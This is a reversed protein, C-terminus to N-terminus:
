PQPWLTLTLAKGGKGAKRQPKQREKDKGLKKGGAQPRRAGGGGGLQSAEEEQLALLTHTLTLTPNPGPHHHRAERPGPQEPVGIHHPNPSSNPSTPTPALTLTLPTPRVLPGSRTSCGSTSRWNLAFRRSRRHHPNPHSNCSRSPTEEARAAPSGLLPRTPSGEEGGPAPKHQKHPRALIPRSVVPSEDVAKCPSPSPALNPSPTPRAKHKLGKAAALGFISEESALSPLRCPSPPPAPIQAEEEESEDGGQAGIARERDPEQSEGHLHAM